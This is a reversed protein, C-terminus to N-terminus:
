DNGQICMSSTKLYNNILFAFFIVPIKLYEDIMIDLLIISFILCFM